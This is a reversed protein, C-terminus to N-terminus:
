AGFDTQAYRVRKSAFTASALPQYRRSFVWCVLAGSGLDELPDDGATQERSSASVVVGPALVVARSAKFLGPFSLLKLPLPPLMVDAM